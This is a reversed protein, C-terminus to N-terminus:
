SKTINDLFRDIRMNLKNKYSPYTAFWEQNSLIPLDHVSIINYNNDRVYYTPINLNGKKEDYLDAAAGDIVQMNKLEMYAHFRNKLLRSVDSLSPSMVWDLPM